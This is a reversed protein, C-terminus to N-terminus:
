FTILRVYYSYGSFLHLEQELKTDSNVERSTLSAPQKINEGEM